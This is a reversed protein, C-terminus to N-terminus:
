PGCSTYNLREAIRDPCCCRYCMPFSCCLSNLRLFFTPLTKLKRTCWRNVDVGSIAARWGRAPGMSRRSIMKYMSNLGHPFSQVKANELSLPSLDSSDSNQTTRKLMRPLPSFRDRARTIPPPTAPSPSPKKNRFLMDADLLNLRRSPRPSYRVKLYENAAEQWEKNMTHPAPKAFM